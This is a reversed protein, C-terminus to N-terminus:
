SRGYPQGFREEHAIEALPKRRKRGAGLKEAPHGLPIINLITRGEPINLLARIEPLDLNSVWNSGVGAEWATLMMSQTARAGDIYGIPSDPVVVAIALPAQAIYDGYVAAAGLQRLTERDRIVIFDWHQKNKSSGTLRGAELIREIVDDPVPEERYSRVALMTRVAEFVNM